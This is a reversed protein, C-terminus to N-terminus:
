QAKPLAGCRGSSTECFVTFRDCVNKNPCSEECPEKEPASLLVAKCSCGCVDRLV